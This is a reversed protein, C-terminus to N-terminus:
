FGGAAGGHRPDAVATLRGKDFMVAHVEGISVRGLVAHGMANLADITEKPARGTEFAMEEPIAQHHYRPAAVAEALSKGYATVNLFVQLVTTPIAPGGATGLALFPQGDRFVFTPSLSSAPRKAPDVLNVRGQVLGDRNPRGQQTTFDDMANNLLFGLGPVVFGSGFDEGLTTTLAVVNGEPDAITFHTTHEGEPAVDVPTTLGSTAVVRGPEISRRWQRAREASFVDRYPIRASLPDAAYANRDIFARRQAEVILHLARSSQFGLAGLDDNALIGLTQALVLGGGSPPPVTYLDYQGRRIRMPARWVPEYDALDRFGIIGGAARVGEVLLKATEGTYFERAGRQAIRGLTRALEGHAVTERPSNGDFFLAATATFQDINRERKAAALAAKTETDTEFGTRAISESPAVVHSWALKGFRRHLADLGAVTGPVGAALPGTRSLVPASAFAEPRADRPATERFDLSWVGASRADYYLAFGGGGLNGAQPKVVALVLAVAVAADAANGGRRLIDLGVRTAIPSASSMAARSATVSGGAKLSLPSAVLALLSVSVILLRFERAASVATRPRRSM